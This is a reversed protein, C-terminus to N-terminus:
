MANRSVIISSHAWEQLAAEDTLVNDPVRYYPMRFHKNSGAHDYLYVNTDDAKFYIRGDSDVLAFM